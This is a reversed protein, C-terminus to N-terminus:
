SELSLEVFSHPPLPGTYKFRIRGGQEDAIGDLERDFSELQDRDVLFSASVAMREHMPEGVDVAVAERSLREVILAGDAERRVGLAESILEGLRIREPYTAEESGQSVIQKLQAVERDEDVIERLVTPEDYIGRVNIEVKGDLEDLQAALEERHEDLLRTRVADADELVVGFRMPLVPGHEFAVELAHAHALLEARGAELPEAEVDSTLAGIADLGVVSLPRDGIGTGEVQEGAAARVVGYVYKPQQDAEAM